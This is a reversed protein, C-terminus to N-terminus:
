NKRGQVVLKKARRLQDEEDKLLDKAVQLRAEITMNSCNLLDGGDVVPPVVVMIGREPFERQFSDVIAMLKQHLRYDYDSSMM